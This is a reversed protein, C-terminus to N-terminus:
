VDERQQTAQKPKEQDLANINSSSPPPADSAEKTKAWLVFYLGAIVLASGLASCAHLILYNFCLLRTNKKQSLLQILQFLKCM